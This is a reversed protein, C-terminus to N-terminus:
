TWDFCLWCSWGKSGSTTDSEVTGLDQLELKDGLVGYCPSAQWALCSVEVHDIDTQLCHTMKLLMNARGRSCSGSRVAQVLASELSSAVAGVLPREAPVTPTLTEGLMSEETEPPRRSVSHYRSWPRQQPTGARAPSPLQHAPPPLGRCRLRRSSPQPSPLPLGGVQCASIFTPLLQAPPRPLPLVLAEM